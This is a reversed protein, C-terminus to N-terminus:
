AAKRRYDHHLGGLVPVSVIEGEAHDPLQPDCPIRQHIGQHPRAHNLYAVYDTVIHWLHRDSLILMYDLCERRLSGLFRECYANARPAEVPTKLIEIEAGNVVHQFQGGFKKDNDRILFRPGESFPTAERLQQATWADTLRRTVNVHVVQRSELEM